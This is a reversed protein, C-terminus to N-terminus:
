SKDPTKQEADDSGANRMAGLFSVFAVPHVAATKHLPLLPSAQAGADSAARLFIVM